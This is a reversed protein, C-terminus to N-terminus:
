KKCSSEVGQRMLRKKSRSGRHLHCKSRPPCVGLCHPCMWPTDDESGQLKFRDLCEECVVKRCLSQLYGSCVRGDYATRSCVHCYLSPPASLLERSSDVGSPPPPLCLEDPGPGIEWGPEVLSTAMIPTRLPDDLCLGLISQSEDTLGEISTITHVWPPDESQHTHCNTM